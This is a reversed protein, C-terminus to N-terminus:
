KLYLANYLSLATVPSDEGDRNKIPAFEEERSVRLLAIDDVLQFSDFIFTEFKISNAHDPNIIRGDPLMLDTKKKAIHYPLPFSAIKDLIDMSFMYMVIGIDGFLFEGQEDKAEAKERSIETYEVYSPKGNKYCFVGAKEDYSRKLASKCAIPLGAHISYGIFFPDAVHVLANDIGCIFVRKIGQEKLWQYKGSKQLSSFIGGNGNPGVALGAENVIARGEFDILPIMEQPFFEVRSSDYGFFDQQQFYAKTAEHNEESTMILWPIFVGTESHIKLLRECQIGFLSRPPNTELIFTGKPGKLGLRTGQGGAMTIAAVERRKIADFGLETMERIQKKTATQKVFSKIPLLIEEQITNESKNNAALEHYLANIQAFDTKLIQKALQDSKQSFVPKMYDALHEQHYKRCYDMAHKVRESM